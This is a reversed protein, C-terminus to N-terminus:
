GQGHCIEYCDRILGARGTDYYNTSFQDLLTFARGVTAGGGGMVVSSAYGLILWRIGEAKDNRVDKLLPILKKWNPQRTILERAITIAIDEQMSERVANEQEDLPLSLVPALLSLAQRASGDAVDILKSLADESLEKGEAEVVDLVLERMDIPNLPKVELTTCRTRVTKILKNPETTCLFFFCHSPPDEIMKLMANQADNTLKHAEDFLYIRCAGFPALGKNREISKIKDIGRAEGASNIEEFDADDCKMRRALIRALTTKGMGSGGAFMLCHPITGARIWSSLTAVVDANGRVDKLRQPRYKTGLDM